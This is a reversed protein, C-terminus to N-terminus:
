SNHTIPHALSHTSQQPWGLIEIRSIVSIYAGTQGAQEVFVKTTADLAADLYYILIV